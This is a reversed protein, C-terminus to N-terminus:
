LHVYFELTQRSTNTFLVNIADMFETDRAIIKINSNPFKNNMFYTWDTSNWKSNLKNTSFLNYTHMPDKM